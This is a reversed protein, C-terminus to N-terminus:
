CGDGDEEDEDEKYLELAEQYSSSVFDALTPDEIWEQQLYINDGEDISDWDFVVHDADGYVEVVCGGRVEIVVRTDSPTAVWEGGEVMPVQKTEEENYANARKIGTWGYAHSWFLKHNDKRRILYFM